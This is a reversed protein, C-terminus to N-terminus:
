QFSYSKTVLTSNALPFRAPIIYDPRPKIQAGTAPPLEYSQDVLTLNLPKDGEVKLTVDFGNATPNSYNLIWKEDGQQGGGPNETPIRKDNVSAELVKTQADLFLSLAPAQRPSKVHLQFTRSGAERSQNLLEVSPAPLAVPQTEKKLYMGYILPLYDNLTGREPNASLFQETYEDPNEDESAWVARNKSADLIYFVGDPVPENKDRPSRVIAAGLCIAGVLFASAPLVWRKVNGALGGIFEFQPLVIWSLLVVLLMVAPALSLSVGVLILQLLPSLLLLPVIVALLCAGILLAPSLRKSGSAIMV